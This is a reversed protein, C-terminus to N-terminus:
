KAKRPITRRQELWEAAEAPDIRWGKGVRYAPLKGTGILSYVNNEHISLLDAFKKVSIAGSQSRLTDVLSAV